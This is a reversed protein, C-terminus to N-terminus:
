TARVAELLQSIAPRYEVLDIDGVTTARLGVTGSGTDVVALIERPSEVHSVTLGSELVEDRAPAAPADSGPEVDPDPALDSLFAAVDGEDVLTVEVQLKQDPSYLLVGPEQGVLVSWDKLPPLPPWVILDRVLPESVWRVPPTIQTHEGIALARQGDSAEARLQAMHVPGLTVVYGIGVILVALLILLTARLGRFNRTGRKLPPEQETM